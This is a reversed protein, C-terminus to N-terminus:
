DTRVSLGYHLLVRNGSREEFLPVFGFTEYLRRVGDNGEKDTSLRIETASALASRAVFARLLRRGMGLSQLEPLVALSSLEVIHEDGEVRARSTARESSRGISNFLRRLCRPQTVAFCMLPWAFAHWHSRLHRYYVDVDIHGIAFGYIRGNQDSTVLSLDGDFALTVEYFARLFAPGLKTLFHKPFAAQHLTALQPADQREAPRMLLDSLQTASLRPTDAPPFRLREEYLAVYARGMHEESYARLQRNKALSGLEARRTPNRLLSDIADVLANPDEPPVLVAANGDATVERNSGINSAIIACGASMAELLAISMGERVSPLAVIDAAALWSGVDETFGAFRITTLAGLQRVRKELAARHPGEGVIVLRLDGHRHALRESADILAELGKGTALRGISLIMPASGEIGVERRRQDPSITPLVREPSVGNPIALIQSAPAIELSIAWERHFESVAVLVDCWRSALREVMSIARILWPPSDEHFAFGHITHVILPVGAKRAALRGLIGAKSTHTHVVDYPADRLWRSLTLVGWLDSLPRVRSRICDLRVARIHRLGLADCFEPDTALVDVEHGSSRAASALAIIVRGGGGFASDGVVHLIRAL